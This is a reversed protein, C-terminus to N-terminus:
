KDWWFKGKKTAVPKDDTKNKQADSNLNEAVAPKEYKKNKQADSNLDEAVDLKDEIKNDEFALKVEEITNNVLAEELLKEQDDKKNESEMSPKVVEEEPTQSKVHEIKKDDDIADIKPGDDVVKQVESYKDEEGCAVENAKVLTEEKEEISGKGEENSSTHDVDDDDVIVIDEKNVLEEKAVVEVNKAVINDLADEPADGNLVNPKSACAGM